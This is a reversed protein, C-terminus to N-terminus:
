GKWGKWNLTKTFLTAGADMAQVAILADGTSLRHHGRLVGARLCQDNTAGRIEVPMELVLRLDDAATEDGHSHAIAHAVEVLLIQTLCVLAM